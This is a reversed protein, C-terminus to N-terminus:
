DDLRPPITPLHISDLELDELPAIFTRRRILPSDSPGAIERESTPRALGRARAPRFVRARRRQDARQTDLILEDESRCQECEDNGVVRRYNPSWGCSHPPPPSDRFM